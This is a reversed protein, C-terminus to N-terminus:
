KLREFNDKMKHLMTSYNKTTTKESERRSSILLTASTNIIKSEKGGNVRPTITVGRTYINTLHPPFLQSKLKWFLIECM